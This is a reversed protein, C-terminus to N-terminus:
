WMCLTCVSFWTDGHGFVFLWLSYLSHATTCALMFIIIVIIVFVNPLLANRMQVTFNNFNACNTTQVSIACTLHTLYLSVSPAYFVFCCSFFLVSDYYYLRIISAYSNQSTSFLASCLFDVSYFPMFCIFFATFNHFHFANGVFYFSIVARFRRLFQTTERTFRTRHEHMNKLQIETIKKKEMEELM